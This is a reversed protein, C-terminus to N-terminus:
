VCWRPLRDRSTLRLAAGLPAALCRAPGSVALSPIVRPVYNAIEFDLCGPLASRPVSRWVVQLTDTREIGGGGQLPTAIGKRTRNM